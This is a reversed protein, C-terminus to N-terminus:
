MARFDRVPRRPAFRPARVGAALLLRLVRGRHGPFPDLLELMREDSGRPEGTLVFSVTHPINWDGIPVADADGLANLAVSNATWVGVGPVARLRERAKEGPMGVAEELRGAARAVRRITDARQREIGLRHYDWSPTGALAAPSPPLLLGGPGPAPEGLARFLAAHGGRAEKGSVRQEVVTAVLPDLVKGTRALRLGPLRHRLTAVLGGAPRFGTEDDLQGALAPAGELAWAAGPGWAQADVGGSAHRLHLTAPGLPTRTARWVEGDRLRMSPDAPGRWLPGLTLRLDVPLRLTVRARLPPHIPVAAAVARMTAARPGGDRHPNGFSDAPSEVSERERHAPM